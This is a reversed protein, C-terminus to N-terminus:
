VVDLAISYIRSYFRRLPRADSMLTDFNRPLMMLNVEVMKPYYIEGRATKPRSERANFWNM